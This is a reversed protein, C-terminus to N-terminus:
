AGTRYINTAAIQPQLILPMSLSAALVDAIEAHPIDSAKALRMVRKFRVACNPNACERELEPTAYDCRSCRLVTRKGNLDYDWVRVVGTGRRGHLHATGAATRLYPAVIAAAHRVEEAPLMERVFDAPDLVADHKRTADLWASVIPGPSVMWHDPGYQEPEAFVADLVRRAAM